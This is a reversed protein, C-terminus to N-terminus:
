KRNVKDLSIWGSGSKLKGWGNEAGKGAKVDTITFSGVGTFQGTIDYDEGPGKRINLNSVNIDVIFENSSDKTAAVIEEISKSMHEKVDNRFKDMTYETELGIWLHEPDNQGTSLGRANGESHSIIVGDELPNLNYTDCLAAVLEVASKYTHALDSLALEDDSCTFTNLSTYKLVSPECIAVSIYTNNAAGGCHWARYNWPLTQYVKGNKADILAHVYKSSLDPKNWEEIFVSARPEAKGVSHLMIGKVDIKQGAKYCPNEKLFTRIIEM